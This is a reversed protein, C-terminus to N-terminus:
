IVLKRSCGSGILQSCKEKNRNKHQEFAQHVDYNLDFTTKMTNIYVIVLCQILGTFLQTPFHKSNHSSYDLIESFDVMRRSWCPLSTLSSIVINEHEIVKWKLIDHRHVMRVKKKYFILSNDRKKKSNIIKFQPKRNRFLVCLSLFLLFFEVGSLFVFIDKKNNSLFPRNLHYRKSDSM